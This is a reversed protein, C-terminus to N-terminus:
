LPIKYKDLLNEWYDKNGIKSKHEKINPISSWLKVREKSVEMDFGCYDEKVFMYKCHYIKNSSKIFKRSGDKKYCWANGVSPEHKIDWDNSEIFSINQTKKDYKIIVFSFHENNLEKICNDLRVIDENKMEKMLEDLASIHVYLSFGVKKM